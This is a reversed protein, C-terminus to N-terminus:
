KLDEWSISLGDGSSQKSFTIIDQSALAVNIAVPANYIKKM